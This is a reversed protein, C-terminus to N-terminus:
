SSMGLIIPFIIWINWLVLWYDLTHIRKLHFWRGVALQLSYLSMTCPIIFKFFRTIQSGNRRSAKNYWPLSLGHWCWLFFSLTPFSGATFKGYRWSVYVRGTRPTIGLTQAPPIAHREIGRPEGEWLLWLPFPTQGCTVVSRYLSWSKCVRCLQVRCDNSCFWVFGMDSVRFHKLENSTWYVKGLSRGSRGVEM